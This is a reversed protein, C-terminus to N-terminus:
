SEAEKRDGRPFFRVLRDLVEPLADGNSRRIGVRKDPAARLEGRMVGDLAIRARRSAPWVASRRRSTVPRGFGCVFAARAVEDTVSTGTATAVAQHCM